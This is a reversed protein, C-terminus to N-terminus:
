KSLDQCFVFAYVTKVMSNKHCSFNMNRITQVQEPQNKGVQYLGLHIYSSSIKIKFFAQILDCQLWMQPTNEQNTISM